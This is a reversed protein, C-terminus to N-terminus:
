ACDHFAKILAIRDIQHYDVEPEEACTRVAVGNFGFSGHVSPPCNDVLQLETEM